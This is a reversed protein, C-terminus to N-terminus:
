NMNYKQILDNWFPDDMLQVLGDNILFLLDTDEKRFAVGYSENTDIEGISHLPKGEIAYRLPYDHAIAADIQKNQLDDVALPLTDYLMLNEVPMIGPTILHDEVWFQGSTSRQAGIILDGAFFEQMTWNNDNHSAVSQNVRWYPISFNVVQQREDTIGMGSYIM